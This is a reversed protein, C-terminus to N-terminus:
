NAPTLRRAGVPPLPPEAWTIAPLLSIRRKEKDRLCNTMIGLLPLATQSAKRSPELRSRSAGTTRHESENPWDEQLTPHVRGHEVISSTKPPRIISRPRDTDLYICRIPRTRTRNHGVVAAAPSLRVRLPLRNVM